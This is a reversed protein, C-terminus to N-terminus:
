AELGTGYTLRRAAKRPIGAARYLSMALELTFKAVSPWGLGTPPRHVLVEPGIAMAIQRVLDARRFVDPEVALLGLARSVGSCGRTLDIEPVQWSETRLLARESRAVLRVVDAGLDCWVRYPLFEDDLVETADARVTQWFAIRELVYARQRTSMTHPLVRDRWWVVRGSATNFREAAQRQEVETM